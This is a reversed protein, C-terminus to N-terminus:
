ETDLQRKTDLWLVSICLMKCDKVPQCEKQITSSQIINTNCLEQIHRSVWMPKEGIHRSIERVGMKVIGKSDANDALFMLLGATKIDMEINHIKM